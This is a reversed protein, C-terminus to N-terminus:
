YFIGFSLGLLKLAKYEYEIKQNLLGDFYSLFTLCMCFLLFSLFFPFFTSFSCLGKNNKANEERRRENTKPFGKTCKKAREEWGFAGKSDTM